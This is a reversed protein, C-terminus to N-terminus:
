PVAPKPEWQTRNPNAKPEMQTRNATRQRDNHATELRNFVANIFVYPRTDSQPMQTRKSIEHKAAQPREPSSMASM